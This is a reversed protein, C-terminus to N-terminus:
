SILRYARPASEPLDGARIINFLLLTTEDRTTRGLQRVMMDLFPCAHARDKSVLAPVELGHITLAVMDWGTERRVADAWAVGLMVILDDSAEGQERLLRERARVVEIQVRKASDLPAVDAALGSHSRWRELEQEIGESMEDSLAKETVSTVARPTPSAVPQPPPEWPGPAPAESDWLLRFKAGTLCASNCADVFEQTVFYYASSLQPVRFMVQGALEAPKFVFRRVVSIKGPRRYEITSRQLDLADVFNIVNVLYHTKGEHHIPLLEVVNRLLPALRDAARQNITVYGGGTSTFDAAQYDELTGSMPEGWQVTFPQWSDLIPQGCVRDLVSYYEEAHAFTRYSGFDCSLKYIKM